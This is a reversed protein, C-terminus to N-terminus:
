LCQVHWCTTKPILTSLMNGVAALAAAIISQQKQTPAQVLGGGLDDATVEQAFGKTTAGGCLKNHVQAAIGRKRHEVDREYQWWLAAVGAVHPAAMSTGSESKLSPQGPLIPIGLPRSVSASLVRVGPACLAAGANSFDALVLGAPSEGIAAVSLVGPTAAPLQVHVRKTPSSGNGGAAIILPTPRSLLGEFQMQGLVNQYFEKHVQCIQQVEDAAQELSTGRARLLAVKAPLDYALSINIINAGENWAWLLAEYLMMCNGKGKDPIVKAVLVDTIGPAVGIRLGDVPRGLITGLCHTGHGRVDHTATKQLSTLPCTVALNLVLWAQKDQLVSHSRETAVVISM